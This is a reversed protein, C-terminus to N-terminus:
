RGVIWSAGPAPRIRRQNADSTMAEGKWLLFEQMLEKRAARGEAGKLVPGALKAALLKTLGATFLPSFQATDTVVATYRMVADVQNTLVVPSGNIVEVAFPQPTEVGATGPLVQPTTYPLPIGVSYDDAANPDLIAIINLVNSPLAYAYTWTTVVSPLTIAALAVRYTAFDWDHMDLLEDRAMPYFRACHGAQASTDPPSISSVKAADGLDALALNCIDVESAM